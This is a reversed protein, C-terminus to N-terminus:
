QPSCPNHIQCKGKVKKPGHCALCKNKLLPAVIKNFDKLNAKPALQSATKKVARINLLNSKSRGIERAESLTPLQTDGAQATVVISLLLCRMITILKNLRKM